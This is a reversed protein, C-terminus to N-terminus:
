LVLEFTERESCLNPAANRLGSLNLKWCVKRDALLQESRKGTSVLSIVCRSLVVVCRVTSFSSFAPFMGSISPYLTSTAAKPPQISAQPFPLPFTIMRLSPHCRPVYSCLTAPLGNPLLSSAPQRESRSSIPKRSAYRVM